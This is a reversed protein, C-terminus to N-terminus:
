KRQTMEETLGFMFNPWHFVQRIFGEPISFSGIPLARRLHRLSHQYGLSLERSRGEETANRDQYIEELLRDDEDTWHEAM